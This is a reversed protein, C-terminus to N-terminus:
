SVRLSNKKDISAKIDELQGKPIAHILNKTYETQPNNYIEDIVESLEGIVTKNLSNLKDERNITILLIGESLETLLTSFEKM